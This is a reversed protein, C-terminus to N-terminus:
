RHPLPIPSLIDTYNDAEAHRTAVRGCEPLRPLTLWTPPATTRLGALVTRCVLPRPAISPTAGDGLASSSTIRVRPSTPATWTHRADRHEETEQVHALPPHASPIRPTPLPIPPLTDTSRDAEAFRIGVRRCDTADWALEPRRDNVRKGGNDMSTLESESQKMDDVRQRQRM